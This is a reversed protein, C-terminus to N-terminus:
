GRPLSLTINEGSKIYRLETKAIAAVRGGDLRDGVEVMMRRGSKLRILARRKGSTGFVGILNIKSLNLGSKLTAQKRVLANSPETGAGSGVEAEDGESITSLLRELFTIGQTTEFELPRSKPRLSAFLPQEFSPKPKIAAVAEATRAKPRLLALAALREQEKQAPTKLSSPRQPPRVTVLPIGTVTLVPVNEASPEPVMEPKDPVAPTSQVEPELLALQGDAETGLTQAEQPTSGEETLNVETAVPTRISTDFEAQQEPELNGATLAAVEQSIIQEDGKTEAMRQLDRSEDVATTAEKPLQEVVNVDKAGLALRSQSLDAPRIFDPEPIFSSADPLAIADFVEVFPDISAIYLDGLYEWGMDAPPLPAVPMAALISASKQIKASNPISLLNPLGFEVDPSLGNSNPLVSAMDSGLAPDLTAVYLGSIIDTNATKPAVPAKPWDPMPQRLDRLPGPKIPGVPKYELAGLKSLTKSTDLASFNESREPNQTQVFTLAPADIPSVTVSHDVPVLKELAAISLEFSDDTIVTEPKSPASALKEVVASPLPTIKTLEPTADAEINGPRIPGDSTLRQDGLAAVDKASQSATGPDLAIVPDASRLSHPGYISYATYAVAFVLAPALFLVPWFPKITRKLEESIILASRFQKWNQQGTAACEKLFAGIQTRANKWQKLFELKFERSWDSLKKFELILQKQINKLESLDISRVHAIVAQSISKLGTKTESITSVLNKSAWSFWATIKDQVAFFVTGTAHKIDITVKPAVMTKLTPAPQAVASPPPVTNDVKPVLVVDVDQNSGENPEKQSAKETSEKKAIDQVASTAQTIIQEPEPEPESALSIAQEDCEMLRRNGEATGFFAEGIFSDKPPIAVNGLPKFEHSQAFAEAEQLTEIAVAAVFITDQTTAWDFRLESLQYPTATKLKEIILAEIDDILANEPREFTLYKIQENPIVLKVQTASRDFSLGRAKLSGLKPALDDEEFSVTGVPLWGENARRLLSIGDFSLSLAFNPKM